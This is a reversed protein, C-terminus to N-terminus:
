NVFCLLAQANHLIQHEGVVPCIISFFFFFFDRSLFIYFVCILYFDKYSM